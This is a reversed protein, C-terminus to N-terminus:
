PRHVEAALSQELEGSLVQPRRPTRYVFFTILAGLALVTLLRPVHLVVLHVIPWTAPALARSSGLTLWSFLASGGVALLMLAGWVWWIVRRTLGLWVVAQQWLPLTALLTGWIVVIMLPDFPVHFREYDYVSYGGVTTLVLEYLVILVIAGMAEAVALRTKRKWFLLAGWLLAFLPFFRYTQAVYASASVELKIPPTAVPGNADFASFARYQDSSTFFVYVSDALFQFPHHIIVSTAYDGGLAWQNATIGPYQALLDYPNWGGKAAFADLERQVQAYHPSSEDQMHYQLVKGVLNIRQVYSVGVYGNQTANFFIFLSLLSYLLLAAALSHPLMRRLKGNRRAIFLLYPILLIPLYIWEPRTMFLLLMCSSALWLYRPKLRKIFLVVTLALSTTLWLAFGEVIIPKVFSLLYTNTGVLFGVLFAVWSRRLLLATLVYMELTAIVFLVGQVVAVAFFNGVGALLFILAVLLPYGPTRLPDVPNGSALFQRTVHLYSPTDYSFEPAAPQHLYFSATALSTIILLLLGLPMYRQHRWDTVLAYRIASVGQRLREGIKTLLSGRAPALVFLKTLSLM